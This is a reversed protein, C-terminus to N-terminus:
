EQCTADSCGAAHLEDIVKEGAELVVLVGLANWFEELESGCLLFPRIRHGGISPEGRDSLGELEREQRFGLATRQHGFEGFGGGVM